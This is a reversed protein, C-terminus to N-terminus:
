RIILHQKNAMTNGGIESARGPCSRVLFFCFEVGYKVSDELLNLSRWNSARSSDLKNPAVKGFFDKVASM